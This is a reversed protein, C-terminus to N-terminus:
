EENKMQNQNSETLITKSSEIFTNCSKVDSKKDNINSFKCSSLKKILKAINARVGGAVAYRLRAGGDVATLPTGPKAYAVRILEEQDKQTLMSAQRHELGVGFLLATWFTDGSLNASYSAEINFKNKYGNQLNILSYVADTTVTKDIFGSDRIVMEVDILYSPKVILKSNFYSNLSSSLAQKFLKKDVVFGFGAYDDGNVKVNGVDINQVFENNKPILIVDNIIEM